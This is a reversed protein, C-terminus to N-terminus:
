ENSHCTGASSDLLRLNGVNNDYCGHIVGASDPITAYAVGAAMAFIAGASAVIAIRRFRLRPIMREERKTASGATGTRNGRITTGETAGTRRPRSTADTVSTVSSRFTISCGAPTTVNSNVSM